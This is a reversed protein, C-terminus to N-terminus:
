CCCPTPPAGDRGPDGANMAAAYSVRARAAAGAGRAAGRGRRDRGLVRQRDGRVPTRRRSRRRCRRRWARRRTSAAARARRGECCSATSTGPRAGRQAGVHVRGRPLARTRGLRRAVRAVAALAEALAGADGRPDSWRRTAAPRRCRRTTPASWRCAARWRRSWWWGSARTCRRTCWRPRRRAAPRRAARRGRLRAPRAAGRRARWRACRRRGGRRRRGRHGAPAAAGVGAVGARARGVNKKRRLDGIASCTRRATRCRRRAAAAAGAREPGRARSGRRGGLAVRRGRGDGGVRLDGSRGVAGGGPGLVRYKWRTAPAFDEPHTEFALDHVTVVGPCPRALPLFCNPAHLVGAGRSAAGWRCGPRSGSSRRGRGAGTCSSSPRVRAGAARPRARGRLPGVRAAAGGARRATDVAVTPM